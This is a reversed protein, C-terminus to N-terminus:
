RGAGTFEKWEEKMSYYHVRTGAARLYRKKQSLADMDLWLCDLIGPDLKLYVEGSFDLVLQPAKGFITMGYFPRGARDGRPQRCSVLIGKEIRLRESFSEVEEKWFAQEEMVFELSKIELGSKELLELGFSEYGLVTVNWARTGQERLKREFAKEGTEKTINWVGAEHEKWASQLLHKGYREKRYGTFAPLPWHKEWWGRADAKQLWNDVTQDYVTGVDLSEGAVVFPRLFSWLEEPWDSRMRSYIHPIRVYFIEPDAGAKRLHFHAMGQTMTQEMILYVIRDM